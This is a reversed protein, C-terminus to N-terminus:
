HWAITYDCFTFSVVVGGRRWGGAIKYLHAIFAEFHHSLLYWLDDDMLIRNVNGNNMKYEAQRPFLDDPLESPEMRALIDKWKIQRIKRINDRRQKRTPRDYREVQPRPGTIKINGDRHYLYFFQEENTENDADPPEDDNRGGDDSRGGDDIFEISSTSADSTAPAEEELKAKKAAKMDKVKKRQAEETKSSRM